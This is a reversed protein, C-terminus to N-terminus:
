FAKGNEKRRNEPKHDARKRNYELKEFLAGAVDLEFGGALDLIRIICDALEVESAKRDTLHRDMAKKRFGELAESLESHCLALLEGVNRNLREGTELDHWWGGDVALQHCHQQLLRLQNEMEWLKLEESINEQSLATDYLGLDRNLQTMEDLWNTM